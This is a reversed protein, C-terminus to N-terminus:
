MKEPNLPLLQLLSHRLFRLCFLRMAASEKKNFAAIVIGGVSDRM